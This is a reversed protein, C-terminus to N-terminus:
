YLFSHLTLSTNITAHRLRNDLTKHAM